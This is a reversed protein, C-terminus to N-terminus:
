RSSSRTGRPSRTLSFGERAGVCARECVVDGTTGFPRLPRPRARMVRVRSCCGHRECNESMKRPHPPAVGATGAANRPNRIRVGATVRGHGM